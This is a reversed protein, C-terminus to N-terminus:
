CCILSSFSIIWSVLVSIRTWSFLILPRHHFIPTIAPTMATMVDSTKPEPMPAATLVRM